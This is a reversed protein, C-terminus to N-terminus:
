KSSKLKENHSQMTTTIGALLIILTLFWSAEPLNHSFISAFLAYGTVYIAFNKNGQKASQIYLAICFAIWLLAGVIGFDLMLRLFMNHSGQGFSNNNEWYFSFGLGQGIFPHEWYNQLASYFLLIRPDDVLTDVDNSGFFLDFRDLANTSQINLLAKIAVSATGTIFVAGITVMLYGFYRRPLIGCINLAVITFVFLFMGSRSFTLLIALSALGILAFRLANPSKLLTLTMMLPILSAASNPNLYLGAARDVLGKSTWGMTVFPLLYDFVVSGCALSFLIILLWVPLRYAYYSALIAPLMILNTSLLMVFGDYAIEANPSYSLSYLSIVNYLLLWLFLPSTVLARLGSVALLLPFCAFFMILWLKYPPMGIFEGNFHDLNLGYVTLLFSCLVMGIHSRNLTFNL